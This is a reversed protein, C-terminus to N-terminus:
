AKEDQDTHQGHHKCQSARIARSDIDTLLVRAIMIGSASKKIRSSPMRSKNSRLGKLLRGCIWTGIGGNEM